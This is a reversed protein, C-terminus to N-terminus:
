SPFEKYSFTKIRHVDILPRHQAHKISASEVNFTHLVKLWMHIKNYWVGVALDSFCVFFVLFLLFFDHSTLFMLFDPSTTITASHNTEQMKFCRGKKSSILQMLLVLDQPLIDPFHLCSILIQLVSTPLCVM